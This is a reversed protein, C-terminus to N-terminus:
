RSGTGDRTIDLVTVHSPLRRVRREHHPLFPLWSPAWSPIWAWPDSLPLSGQGVLVFARGTKGDVVVAVPVGGVDIHGLSSGTAVDLIDVGGPAGLGVVARGRREDIALALASVRLAITRLLRGNRADLMTLRDRAFPVVDGVFVRASRVAIAIPAMSIPGTCHLIYGAAMPIPTIRLVAGSRADVVAVGRRTPIFVHTTRASVGVGLPCGAGAVPVIGIVQGTTADLMRTADGLFVVFARNAQEDVGIIGPYGGVGVSRLPRGSAADLLQITGELLGGTSRLASVFVRRSRDDIAIASPGLGVATTHQPVGSRADLISVSGSAANAVFVRGFRESVAVSSPGRGVPATRVLAGTRADFVSVDGPHKGTRPTPDSVVFVRETRTDLVIARGDGPLTIIGVVPSNPDGHRPLVWFVTGVMLLTLVVLGVATLRRTM